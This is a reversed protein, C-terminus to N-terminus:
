FFPITEQPIMNYAIYIEYGNLSRGTLTYKIKREKLLTMVTGVKGTFLLVNRRYIHFMLSSKLGNRIGIQLLGNEVDKPNIKHRQNPQDVLRSSVSLVQYTHV